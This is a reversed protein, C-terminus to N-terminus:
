DVSLEWQGSATTQVKIGLDALDRAIAKLVAARLEGERIDQLYSTVARVRRLNQSREFVSRTSFISKGPAINYPCRATHAHADNNENRCSAQCYACFACDCLACWLAFCGSFDLFAMGCEPCHLTLLDEAIKNKHKIVEDPLEQYSGAASAAAVSPVSPPPGELFRLLSEATTKSGSSGDCVALAELIGRHPTTFCLPRRERLANLSSTLSLRESMALYLVIVAPGGDTCGRADGCCVLAVRDEQALVEDLWLAGRKLKQALESAPLGDVELSAQHLSIPVLGATPKALNLAHTVKHAALLEADALDFIGGLLLRPRVVSASPFGQPRPVAAFPAKTDM